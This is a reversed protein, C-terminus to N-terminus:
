RSMHSDQVATLTVATIRVTWKTTPDVLGVGGTAREAGVTKAEGDPCVCRGLLGGFGLRDGLMPLGVELGEGLGDAVLLVGRGVGAGEFVAFGPGPPAPGVAPPPSQPSPPEPTCVM